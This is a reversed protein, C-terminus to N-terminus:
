ALAPQNEMPTIVPVSEEIIVSDEVISENLETVPEAEIKAEIVLEEQAVEELVIVDMVSEPMYTTDMKTEVPTLELSKDHLEDVQVEDIPSAIEEKGAILDLNLPAKDRQVEADVAIEAEADEITELRGLFNGCQIKQGASLHFKFNKPAEFVMVISSGLNFEGFPAGKELPIPAPFSLRGDYNAGNTIAKKQRRSLNTLLSPDFYAKISGVNTAGVPAYCFFGHEWTGSYVVRENLNFLGKLWRTVGPSVSFLEGPFHKREEVVWDAPSHYRHYDGPALYFLCHYLNNKEPDRLLSSSNSDLGLFKELSYNVGKVQEMEGDPSVEGFWIVHGDAPSVVMATEDVPRAGDKLARRFLAGLNPYNELREEEAEEMNCGFTRAYWGLFPGRLAPHLHLDNVFGWLRSLSRLPLVKYLLIEGLYATRPSDISGDSIAKHKEWPDKITETWSSYGYYGGFGIPLLWLLGSTSSGPISSGHRRPAIKLLGGFQRRLVHLSPRLAM